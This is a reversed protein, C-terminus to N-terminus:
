SLNGLLILTQVRSRKARAHQPERGAIMPARGLCPRCREGTGRESLGQGLRRLLSTRRAFPGRGLADDHHGSAVVIAQDAAQFLAEEIVEIV